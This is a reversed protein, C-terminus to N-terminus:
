AIRVSKIPKLFSASDIYLGDLIPKLDIYEEEPEANHRYKALVVLYGDDWRVVDVYRELSYPAKFRIHRGGFSFTTFGDLSSLVAENSSDTSNKSM